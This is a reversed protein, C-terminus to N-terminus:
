FYNQFNLRRNDGRVLTLLRDSTRRGKRRTDVPFPPASANFAALDRELAPSPGSGKGRRAFLGSWCNCPGPRANQRRQEEVCAGFDAVAQPSLVATPKTEM